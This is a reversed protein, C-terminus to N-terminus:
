LSGIYDQMEKPIQAEYIRFDNKVPHKFGLKLAHLMQRPADAKIGYYVDGMIPHNIHKLHVRIQHTRGTKLNLQLLTKNSYRKIVKYHTLAEKDSNYDVVRKVRMHQSRGIPVDIVGEDFEVVGFVVAVYERLVTREKFQHSLNEHTQNDKAIVILGSTDKDLRHVIGPKLPGGINSLNKFQYILGNVLTHNIGFSPPHTILGAPKDIVVLHDDQFVINLDIKEPLLEQEEDKDQFTIDINEGAKLIHRPKVQLGDVLVAGGNILDTINSRSIVGSLEKALFKDLRIGSSEETIKFRKKPM